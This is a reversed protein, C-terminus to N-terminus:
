TKKTLTPMYYTYLLCYALGKAKSKEAPRGVTANLLILLHDTYGLTLLFVVIPLLYSKRGVEKRLM